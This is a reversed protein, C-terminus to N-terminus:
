KNIEIFLMKLVNLLIEVINIAQIIHKSNYIDYNDNKTVPDYPLNIFIFNLKLLIVGKVTFIFKDGQIINRVNSFRYM